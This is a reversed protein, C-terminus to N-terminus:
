KGGSNIYLVCVLPLLLLLLLNSKWQTWIWENRTVKLWNWVATTELSSNWNLNVWKVCGSKKIIVSYMSLHPVIHTTCETHHQFLPLCAPTTVTCSQHKTAWKFEKSWDLDSQLDPYVRETSRWTAVFDGSVKCLSRCYCWRLYMFCYIVAHVPLYETEPWQLAELLRRWVSFSNNHEQIDWSFVGSCQCVAFSRPATTTLSGQTSCSLWPLTLYATTWVTRLSHRVNSLRM